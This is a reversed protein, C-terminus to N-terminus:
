AWADKTTRMSSTRESQSFAKSGGSKSRRNASSVNLFMNSMGGPSASYTVCSEASLGMSRAGTAMADQNAAAFYFEWKHPAGELTAIRAKIQPSSWLRSANEAGDTLIFIIVKGPRVQHANYLTAADDLCSGIADWLATGGRPEVDASTIPSTNSLLTGDHVKTYRNDFTAFLLQTTGSTALDDKRMEDM